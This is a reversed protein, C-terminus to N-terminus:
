LPFLRRPENSGFWDDQNWNAIADSLSAGGRTIAEGQHNMCVVLIQGTNSLHGTTDPRESCSPDPCAKIGEHEARIIELLAQGDLLDATSLIQRLRDVFDEAAPNSKLIQELVEHMAGRSDISGPDYGAAILEAQVQLDENRM